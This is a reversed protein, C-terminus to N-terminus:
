LDQSSITSRLAELKRVIEPAGKLQCLPSLHFLIYEWDLNEVGQRMLIRQVDLQDQLRDAFAKMVILDEASCLRLVADPEVEVLQSRRAAEEEFPLAGLAIDIGIGEASKLLLVRNQLAFERCAEIRPEFVELLPDIYTEEGGFGTLLTLDVDRTFRPEGWHQVALGGIFCFKWGHKECERQVELAVSCLENM